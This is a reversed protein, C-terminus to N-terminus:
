LFELLFQANNIKEVAIEKADTIECIESNGEHTMRRLDSEQVKYRLLKM